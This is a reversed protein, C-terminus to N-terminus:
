NGGHQRIYRRIREQHIDDPDRSEDDGEVIYRDSDDGSDYDGAFERGARYYAAVREEEDDSPDHIGGRGRGDFESDDSDLEEPYEATYHNEAPSTLV